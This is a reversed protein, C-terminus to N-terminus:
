ATGAEARLTNVDVGTWTSLLEFARNTYDSREAENMTRASTSKRKRHPAGSPLTIEDYLKLKDRLIDHLDAEDLTLTYRQNLLPVALSLVAWYLSRRRENARGGKIEVRVRGVIEEMAKEAVANAPKLMGLYPEFYFPARDAM